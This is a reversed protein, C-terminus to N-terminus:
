MEDPPLVDDSEEDPTIVLDQMGQVLENDDVRLEYANREDGFLISRIRPVSKEYAQRLRADLTNNCVIKGGYASVVVGGSCSFAKGAEPGPALFKKRNVSIVLDGGYKTFYNEVAPIAQEVLELDQERCQVVVKLDRLKVISQIILKQLLVPYNPGTSAQSLNSNAENFIAAIGKEREVLIQIRSKNIENSREIKKSVLANKKKREFENKIKSRQQLVLRNKELTFEAETKGRIEEAKEEAERLIFNVMHDLQRRVSAEDM